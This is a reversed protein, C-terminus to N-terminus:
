MILKIITGIISIPTKGQDPIKTNKGARPNTKEFISKCPVNKCGFVIYYNKFYDVFLKTLKKDSFSM